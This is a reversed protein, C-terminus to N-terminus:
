SAAMRGAGAGALGSAPLACTRPIYLMGGFRLLDRQLLPPWAAPATPGCPLSRVLGREQVFPFHASAGVGRAHGGVAVWGGVYAHLM